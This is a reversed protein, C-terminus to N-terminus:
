GFKRPGARSKGGGGGGVCLGKGEGGFIRHLGWDIPWVYGRIGSGRESQSCTGMRERRIRVHRTSLTHKLIRNTEVPLPAEAQGQRRGAGELDVVAVCKAIRLSNVTNLLSKRSAVWAAARGLRADSAPWRTSWRRHPRSQLNQPELHAKPPIQHAETKLRTAQGARQLLQCNAAHAAEVRAM